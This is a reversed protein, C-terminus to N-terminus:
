QLTPGPTRLNASQTSSDSVTATAPLPQDEPTAASEGASQVTSHSGTRMDAEISDVPLGLLRVAHGLVDHRGEASAKKLGTTPAHIL